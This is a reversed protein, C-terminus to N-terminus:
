VINTKTSESKSLIFISTLGIVAYLLQSFNLGLLLSETDKLLEIAFNFVSTGILLILILKGEFQKKNKWYLLLLFLILHSVSIYLPTPHVPFLTPASGHLFYMGWPLNTFRGYCGHGDLLCANAELIIFLCVVVALFDGIKFLTKAKFLLSNFGIILFILFIFGLFKKSEGFAHYFSSDNKVSAYCLGEIYAMLYTFFYGLVLLSFLPILFSNLKGKEHTAYFYFRGFVLTVLIALVTILEFWNIRLGLIDPPPFM